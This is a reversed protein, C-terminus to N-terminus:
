VKIEAAAEGVRAKITVEGDAIPILYGKQTRVIGEPSIEYIAETTFDKDGKGTVLTQRRADAGKLILAGEVGPSEIRLDEACLSFTVMMALAVLMMRGRRM